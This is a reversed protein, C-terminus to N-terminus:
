CPKLGKEAQPGGFVQGLQAEIAASQVTKAVVTPM